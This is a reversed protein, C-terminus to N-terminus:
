TPPRQLHPQQDSLALDNPLGAQRAVKELSALGPQGARMRELADLALVASLGLAQATSHVPRISGARNLRPPAGPTLDIHAQIMGYSPHISQTLDRYLDYFLGKDSFRDFVQTVSWSRLEGPAPETAVVSAFEPPDGLAASLNAARTIWQYEAARVLRDEGGHTLLVWQASVSCELAVRCSSSAVLPRRARVSLATEVHNLAHALLPFCVRFKREMDESIDIPFTSADWIEVCKRAADIYSNDAIESDHTM